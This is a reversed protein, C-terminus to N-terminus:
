LRQRSTSFDQGYFVSKIIKKTRIKGYLKAALELKSKHFTSIKNKLNKIIQDSDEALEDLHNLMDVLLNEKTMKEPFSPRMHFEFVRNGLTFTGHRKLNYVITNNYLQTTGLGLSNYSNFSFILFRDDKLFARVLEEDSAPLEGGWKSSKPVLYLGSGVKKLTGDEVLQALHRDISTSFSELDSRRYLMGMKLHEKLREIKKM